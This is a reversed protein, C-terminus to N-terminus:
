IDYAINFDGNLCAQLAISLKDQETAHSTDLISNMYITNDNHTANQTIRNDDGIILFGDQVESIELNKIIDGDVFIDRISTSTYIKYGIFAAILTASATICTGLINVKLKKKM